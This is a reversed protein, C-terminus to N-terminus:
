KAEAAISKGTNKKRPLGIFRPIRLCYDRYAQGYVRALHEEEVRVVCYVLVIYSLFGIWGLMRGWAIVTGLILLGYGVSQPNRSFRYLGGIVLGPTANGMWRSFQRFLDMAYVVIGLGIVMLPIGLWPMGDMRPIREMGWTLMGIFMGNIAFMSIHVLSGFWSLKGQQRYERQLYWLSFIASLMFFLGVISFVLGESM